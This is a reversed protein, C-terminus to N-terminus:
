KILYKVCLTSKSHSFGVTIFIYRAWICKYGFVCVGFDNVSRENNPGFVDTWCKHTHKGFIRFSSELLLLNTTWINIIQIFIFKVVQKLKQMNECVFVCMCVNPHPHFFFSGQRYTYIHCLARSVFLAFFKM